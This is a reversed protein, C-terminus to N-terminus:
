NLINPIVQFTYEFSQKLQGKFLDVVSNIADIQFDLKSDFKLTLM